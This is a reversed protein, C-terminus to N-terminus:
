SRPTGINLPHGTSEGVKLAHGTPAAITLPHRTPTGVTITIDRLEATTGVGVFGWTDSGTAVPTRKGVGSGTFSWAGVGEATAVDPDVATATGTGVFAWTGSSAAQAARKGVGAGVFSWAGAGTVKAAQKGDGTGAFGWTGSGTAKPTRKSSGTGTFTFAGAASAKPTRKGTGSGSFSWSGAGTATNPTSGGTAANVAFTLREYNFTGANNTVSATSSASTGTFDESYALSYVYGDTGGARDTYTDAAEVGTGWAVSAVTGGAADVRGGGIVYGVWVATGPLSGLSPSSGGSAVNTAAASSRFTSGAAFEFFQFVVPYNSGNHTTTLADSGAATRHWVYLGVNNVASGGSPLTWGAPTSSTVAGEVVCVLLRGATPTFSSGAVVTGSSPSVTHSTTGNRPAAITVHNLYTVM